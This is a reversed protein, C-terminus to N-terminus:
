SGKTHEIESNYITYLGYGTKVVADILRIASSLVGTFARGAEAIIFCPAGDSQARKERTGATARITNVANVSVLIIQFSPQHFRKMICKINHRFYATKISNDNSHIVTLMIRRMKMDAICLVFCCNTYVIKRDSFTM